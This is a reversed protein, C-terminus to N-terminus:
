RQTYFAENRWHDLDKAPISTEVLHDTQWEVDVTDSHVAVVVGRAPWDQGVALVEDGIEFM